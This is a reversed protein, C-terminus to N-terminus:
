KQLQQGKGEFTSKPYRRHEILLNCDLSGNSPHGLKMELRAVYKIMTSERDNKYQHQKMKRIRM